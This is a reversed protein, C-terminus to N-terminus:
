MAAAVPNAVIGKVKSLIEREEQESIGRNAHDRILRRAIENARQWADKGGAKLWVDREQRDSLLPRYFERKMYKVTHLEGLFNGGPGIEKILDLAITEGTVEMGRKMRRVMAIIENNIVYQEFSVSLVFDLFGAGCSVHSAGSLCVYPVTLAHEYGAQADPVKADTRAATAWNAMGYHRAMQTAGVNLLASEIGGTVFMGTAMDTLGPVSCYFTPQGPKILQVLTTVALVEANMLTLTGALTVPATCGVQVMNFNHTIIGRSTAEVLIETASEDLRLPSILPCLVVSLIPREQWREGSIIEAMRAVKLLGEVTYVAGIIHKTSCKLGAFFRNVDVDEKPLDNLYIPLSIVDIDPLQDVLSIIDHLDKCTSLRRSGTDLDLVYMASGGTSTIFSGAKYHADREPVRGHLTFEGPVQAMCREVLGRPFTVRSGELVVAGNAQLIGLAKENNVQIGVENLIDLSAEHIQGIESETLVQYM